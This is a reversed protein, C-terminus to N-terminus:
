NGNEQDLCFTNRCMRRLQEPNHSVWIWSRQATLAPTSANNEPIEAQWRKLLKEFLGSLESDLSATPEDLLLVQPELQLVRLLAAVQAEGGSLEKAPRQLFDTFDTGASNNTGTSLSLENLWAKIKQPNYSRNQHAKFEFIQKLNAEVTDEFFVPQQALYAVQSRYQPMEWAALSKGRFSISGSQSSPGSQILDLGALTRLLLSKGSGSSGRLALREGAALNISIETWIWNTSIQRSLNTCSLLPNSKQSTRVASIDTSHKM